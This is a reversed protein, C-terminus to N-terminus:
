VLKFECTGLTEVMLVSNRKTSSHILVEFEHGDVFGNHGGHTM